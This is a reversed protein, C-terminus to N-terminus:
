KVVKRSQNIADNLNELIKLVKPKPYNGCLSIDMHEKNDLHVCIDYCYLKGSLEVGIVHVPDVFEGTPFVYNDAKVSITFLSILGCIIFAVIFLQAIWKIINKM